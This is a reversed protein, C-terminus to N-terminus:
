IELQIIGIKILILHTQKHEIKLQNMKIQNFNLHNYM